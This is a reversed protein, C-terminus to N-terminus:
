KKRKWNTAGYTKCTEIMAKMNAVPATPWIDCGPWVADVGDDICKKTAAEVEEPSANVLINFADVAGFVLPDWGLDERVKAMDTKTEIAVANAGCDAMQKIVLNVGGCIHLVNPIGAENLAKFIKQLHPVIVKQFSKPSLIDSTAGMERVCIFDAGAAVYAKSIEILVDALQDLLANLEKTKKFTIKFMDDLSMIQGALTYPGLVYSGVPFEAGVKAKMKSLADCVVPIRGKKLLDTTDVKFGELEKMPDELIKSKITPYLLQSVDEYANMECGLAEAEVCFDFPALACEYGTLEVTACAVNAMKEADSHVTAFKYGYQDLGATLAAGMGTYCPVRDVEEGKLQKIIREKANM